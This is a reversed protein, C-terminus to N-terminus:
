AAKLLRIRAEKLLKKLRKILNCMLHNRCLIKFIFVMQDDYCGSACIDNFVTADGDMVIRDYM